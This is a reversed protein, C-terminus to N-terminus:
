AAVSVHDYLGQHGIRHRCVPLGGFLDGVTDYFRVFGIQGMKLLFLSDPHQQAIMYTVASPYTFNKEDTKILRATAFVAVERNTASIASESNMLFIFYFAAVAIALVLFVSVGIIKKAKVM